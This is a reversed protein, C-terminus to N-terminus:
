KHEKSEKEVWIFATPIALRDKEEESYFRYDMRAEDLSNGKVRCRYGRMDWVLHTFVHSYGKIGNVELPELGMNVLEGRCGGDELHGDLLVYQYMGHLLKESRKKLLIDGSDNKVLLVTKKQERKKASVKKKPLELQKGAVKAQCNEGLPCINCDPSKPTCILAGLEMLAQTLVAPQAHPMLRAVFETANRKMDGSAVESDDLMLRAYVRKVNGDVAPERQGFSISAIAGATYEGIGPLSRINKLERPFYGGYDNVLTQAAKHLNHARSYYGLGAWLTLVNEIDAQALDQVTPFKKMFRQYYPILASIRTQQAMIESVWIQYPDRTKRWPLNRKSALYWDSLDEAMRKTDILKKMNGVGFEDIEILDAHMAGSTSLDVFPVVSRGHQPDPRQM